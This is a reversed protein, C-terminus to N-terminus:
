GGITWNWAAPPPPRPNSEIAEGISENKKPLVQHRKKQCFGERSRSRLRGREEEGGGMWLGPRSLSALSFRASFSASAPFRPRAMVEAANSVSSVAERSVWSSSLLLWSSPLPPPPPPHPPPPPPPPLPLSPPMPGADFRWNRPWRVSVGLWGPPTLSTPPQVLKIKKIGM